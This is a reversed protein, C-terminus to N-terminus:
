NRMDAKHVFMGSEGLQNFSYEFRIVIDYISIIDLGIGGSYMMKNNLSNNITNQKNYIIGADSFAKLYFRFPIEAYAKFRFGTKLKYKLVEKSFTNRLYGGAVGDVVYYEYGRMYSDSYGLMSQNVFPQDFPLRLHVEAVSSFYFKQPLEIYRGAKVYLQWLNMEKNLGRKVFDIELRKGRTPYPIYNLNYNHYTYKLEPYLVNSKKTAFYRPNLTLITDAVSESQIGLKVYHREISGRRYSYVLGAYFVKRSFTNENKFFQQKNFKTDYNVEKTQSYNFDFGVGHRLKRDTFPNYYSLAIRQAYGNLLWVNLKDNRGSINKGLFKIGYNVRDMSMDHEKIWVNWNRDVPKLYPLGFYYWREKVEVNIDLSDNAWNTFTVTVDVFLSTNILNQRSTKLASLVYTMTYGTDKQLTLERLVIYDKTRKDGDIKIDRITVHADGLISAQQTLGQQSEQAVLHIAQMTILTLFPYKWLINM